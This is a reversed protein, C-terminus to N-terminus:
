SGPYEGPSRGIDVISCAAIADRDLETAVDALRATAPLGEIESENPNVPFVEWGEDLYARVCKNGYKDRDRSAGLVAITSRRSM